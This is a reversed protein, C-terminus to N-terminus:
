TGCPYSSLAALYVVPPSVPLRGTLVSWWTASIFNYYRTWGGEMVEETAIEHSRWDGLYFDVNPFLVIEVLDELQDRSCCAIIASLNVTTSTSCYLQRPRSLNWYCIQHYHELTLADIAMAEQAPAESSKIAQLNLIQVGAANWPYASDAPILDV